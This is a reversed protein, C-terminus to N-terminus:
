QIVRKEFRFVPGGVFGTLVFRVAFFCVSGVTQLLLVGRASGGMGTLDRMCLM